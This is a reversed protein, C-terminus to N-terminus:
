KVEKCSERMRKALQLDVSKRIRESFDDIEEFNLAASVCHGVCRPRGGCLDCKQSIQLEANYHINGYPCALVCMKCGVCREPDITVAGTDPNKSIAGAPCVAMCWPDDCHLCTMPILVHEDIYHNVRIMSAERECTDHSNMFACALECNRCGVCKTPDMTIVKM